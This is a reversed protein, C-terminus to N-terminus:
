KGKKLELCMIDISAINEGLFFVVGYFSCVKNEGTHRWTWIMRPILKTLGRIVLIENCNFINEQLNEASNGSLARMFNGALPNERFHRLCSESFGSLSKLFSISVLSALNHYLIPLSCQLTHPRILSNNVHSQKFYSTLM